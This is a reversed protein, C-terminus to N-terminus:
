GTHNYQLKEIYLHIKEIKDANTLKSSYIQALPPSSYPIDPLDILKHQLNELKDIAKIFSTFLYAQFQKQKLLINGNPQLEKAYQWM